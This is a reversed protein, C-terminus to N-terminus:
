IPEDGNEDDDAAAEGALKQIRHRLQRFTLGLRTAADKKVGNTEALARDILQREIGTLHAELSFGAPLPGEPSLGAPAARLPAPLADVTVEAGNSLAV